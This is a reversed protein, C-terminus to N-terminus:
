ILSFLAHIVEFIMMSNNSHRSEYNIYDFIFISRNKSSKKKKYINMRINLVDNKKTKQIRHSM